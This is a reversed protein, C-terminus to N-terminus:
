NEDNDFESPEVRSITKLSFLAARQSQIIEGSLRYTFNPELGGVIDCLKTIFSRSYIEYSNDSKMQSMNVKHNQDNRTEKEVARIAVQSSAPNVLLQIYKPDGLLHITTKHIRIRYKKLDIAIITPTSPKSM